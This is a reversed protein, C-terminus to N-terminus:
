KESICHNQVDVREDNTFFFIISLNIAHLILPDLLFVCPRIVLIGIHAMSLQVTYQSKSVHSSM